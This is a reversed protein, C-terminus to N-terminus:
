LDMSGKDVTLLALHKLLPHIIFYPLSDQLQSTEQWHKEPDNITKLTEVLLDARIMNDYFYDVDMGKTPMPYHKRAIIEGTDIKENLLIASAACINNDIIQYYITTSGRYDPLWGSHVHLVPYNNLLSAPVIQGGYGSYVILDPDFTDILTKLSPDSLESAQTYEYQWKSEKLTQLLDIKINPSFLHCSSSSNIVRTPVPIDKPEGYVIINNPKINEFSLAQIYAVSRPTHGCLLLIKKDIHHKDKIAILNDDNCTQPSIKISNFSLTISDLFSLSDYHLNIPSLKPLKNLSLKKVVKSFIKREALIVWSLYSSEEKNLQASQSLLTDVLKLLANLYQSMPQLAWARILSEALLLYLIYNNFGSEEIKTHPADVSYSQYLRKSVEFKKLLRPLWYNVYKTADDNKILDLCVQNLIKETSLLTKSETLVSCTYTFKAYSHQNLYDARSASWASIFDAGLYPTYMYNQPLDLLSGTSYRYVSM